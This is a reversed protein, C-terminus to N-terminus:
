TARWPASPRQGRGAPHGRQPQSAATGLATQVASVDASLQDSQDAYEDKADDVVQAADSQVTAFATQVADIGGDAM